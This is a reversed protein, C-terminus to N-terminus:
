SRRHPRWRSRFLLLAGHRIVRPELGTGRGPAGVSSPEPPPFLTLAIVCDGPPPTRLTIPRTAWPVTYEGPKVVFNQGCYDWVSFPHNTAAPDITIMVLKSERAGYVGEPIRRTAQSTPGVPVGLYVQVVEAGALPRYEDCIWDCDGACLVTPANVSVDTIDFTTYSLGFGFGFLPEIGQAQFWRYGMELRESYRIM